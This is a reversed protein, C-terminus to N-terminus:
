RRAETAFRVWGPQALRPGLARAIARAFHNRSTKVQREQPAPKVSSLIKGGLLLETLRPDRVTEATAARAGNRAPM